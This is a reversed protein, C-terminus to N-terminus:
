KLIIRIQENDEKTLCLFNEVQTQICYKPCIEAFYYGSLITSYETCWNKIYKRLKKSQSSSKEELKTLSQLTTTIVSFTSCKPHIDGCEPILHFFSMSLVVNIGRARLLKLAESCHMNSTRISDILYFLRTPIVLDGYLCISVNTRKLKQNTSICKKQHCIRNEDCPTGDFAGDKWYMFDDSPKQFCRLEQCIKEKYLTQTQNYITRIFTMSQLGYHLQCQQHLTIMQGLKTHISTIRNKWCKTTTTDAFYHISIKSGTGEILNFRTFTM